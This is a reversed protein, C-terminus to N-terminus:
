RSHVVAVTLEAVTWSVALESMVPEQPFRVPSQTAAAHPDDILGLVEFQRAVYRELEKGLAGSLIRSRQFPKPALCKGSGGEIM